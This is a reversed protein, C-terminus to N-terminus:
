HLADHCVGFSHNVQCAAMGDDRSAYAMAFLWVICVIAFLFAVGEAGAGGPKVHDIDPPPPPPSPRRNM